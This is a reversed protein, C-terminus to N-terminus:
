FSQWLLLCFFTQRKLNSLTDSWARHPLDRREIHLQAMGTKLLAGAQVYGKGRIESLKAQSNQLCVVGDVITM